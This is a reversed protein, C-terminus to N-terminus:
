SAEGVGSVVDGDHANGIDRLPLTFRWNNSSHHQGPPYEHVTEALLTFGMARCLANSAPNTVRPYAHVGPRRHASPLAALHALLARVSATAWGQRQYEPLVGWGVEFIPEGDHEKPTFSVTGVSDGTPSEVRFVRGEYPANASMATWRRHRALLASDPEPGGLHTTMEPTNRRRLLWLDNDAWPHLRVPRTTNM